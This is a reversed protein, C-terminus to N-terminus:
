SVGKDSYTDRIEDRSMDKIDDETALNATTVYTAWVDRSANGAPREDEALAEEVAHHTAYAADHVAQAEDDAPAWNPEQCTYSWVDDPDVELVAGSLVLRGQVLRDEGSINKVKM